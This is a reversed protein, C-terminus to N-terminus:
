RIFRGGEAVQVLEVFRSGNQGDVTFDLDLGALRLQLARLVNHLRQRNPEQGGSRRLAEVMVRGTLYGEFSFYGVPVKAAEALRHYDLTTPDSQNWPYPVVQTITLGRARAGLRHAVMEGGTISMGYFSTPQKRQLGVQHMLDGALSGGLFMIVAQPAMIGLQRVADVMNSGDLAIAASVAPELKHHGLAARILKLVEEGGPNALHAVGIRTIGITTLHRVLAQAERGYSARVFYALGRCRERASDSVAYGGFMPAGSERVLPEAAATTASGTCGFFAFVKHEKLLSQYAVLAKAPQLEDDLSILRLRRGFVGGRANADDFALQAGANFGLVPQGLPGSLVASQGLLLEGNLPMTGSAASGAARPASAARFAPKVEAPTSAPATPPPASPTSSRGFLDSFWGAHADLSSLGAGALGLVLKRRRM